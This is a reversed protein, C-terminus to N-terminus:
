NFGGDRKLEDLERSIEELREERTLPKESLADLIEQSVDIGETQELVAQKASITLSILSGDNYKSKRWWGALPIVIDERGPLQLKLSGSFDPGTGDDNLPTLTGWGLKVYKDKMTARGFSTAM